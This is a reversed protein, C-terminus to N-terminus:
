ALRMTAGATDALATATAAITRQMVAVAPSATVDAPRAISITRTLTPRTLRVSRLGPRHSCCSRRCSRSASGASWSAAARCGDRRGRHRRAADLGPPRSPPTPRRQAPRLDSSFVIQPLAAVESAAHDRRRATIRRHTSRRSSWSSRSSCPSSRSGDRRTRRRRRSSRSTSSVAPWSTSCGCRGQESSTCNSRRSSGRPVRDAGRRRPQHVLTPTAGLRVRGRQLGALEALERRITQSDALM